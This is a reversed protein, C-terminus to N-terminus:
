AASSARLKKLYELTEAEIAWDQEQAKEIERRRRALVEHLYFRDESGLLAAGQRESMRGAEVATYVALELLATKADSAGSLMREAVDDPIDVTIQM